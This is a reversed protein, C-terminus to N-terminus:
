LRIRVEAGRKALERIINHKMGCDVALVRIKNGKGYVRVDPNSVKAVLNEANIDVFDPVPQGEFEIRALM